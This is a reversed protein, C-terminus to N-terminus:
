WFRLDRRYYVPHIDDHEGQEAELLWQFLFEGQLMGPQRRLPLRNCSEFM